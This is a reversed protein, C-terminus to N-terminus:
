VDGDNVEWKLGAKEMIEVLHMAPNRPFVIKDVDAM